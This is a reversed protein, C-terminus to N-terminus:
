KQYWRTVAKDIESKTAVFTAIKCKTLEELREKLQRNFPDAMVVSLVNGVRDLPIVHSQTAMDAPVLNLVQPDLDYKNIAIYPFGCQVILAVAIDLEEVAGQRVLIEGLLGGEKEQVALAEKLQDETVRHRKVLIQGLREKTIKSDEEAM